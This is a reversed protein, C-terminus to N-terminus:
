NLRRDKPQAIAATGAINTGILNAEVLDDSSDNIEIGDTVNGSIINQDQANPGGVQVGSSSTVEIGDYNGPSTGGGVLAVVGIANGEIVDTGSEDYLAIGSSANGSVLNGAGTGAMSTAGGITNGGGTDYFDIGVVNGQEITGSSDTGIFNGQIVNGVSFPDLIYIGNSANGGIVNGACVVSGGITNDSGDEVGVGTRGGGNGVPSM